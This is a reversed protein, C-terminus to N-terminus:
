PPESAASTNMDHLYSTQVRQLLLRCLVAQSLPAQPPSLPRPSDPFSSSSRALSSSFSSQTGQQPRRPHQPSSVHSHLHNLSSLTVPGTQERAPAVIHACVAGVAATRCEASLLSRPLIRLPCCSARRRLVAQAPDCALLWRDGATRQCLSLSLSRAAPPHSPHTAHVRPHQPPLAPQLM